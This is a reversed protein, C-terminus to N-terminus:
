KTKGTARAPRQAKPTEVSFLGDCWLKLASTPVRFAKGIIRAPLEGADIAAKLTGRSLGTFAQAETLTLLPKAALEQANQTQGRKDTGPQGENIFRAFQEWFVAQANAALMPATPRTVALVTTDTGTKDTQGATDAGATPMEVVASEVPAELETKLRELDAQAIDRIEGTKGRIKRSPLRAAVPKGDKQTPAIYRAITKENVGLFQASEKITM